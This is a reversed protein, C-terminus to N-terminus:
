WSEGWHLGIRVGDLIDVNDDHNLDAAVNWHSESPESGWALALVVADLINVTKDENVDGMVTVVFDNKTIVNNDENDEAVTNESDVSAKLSYKGSEGTKTPRFLNSFTLEKSSSGALSAVNQEASAELTSDYHVELKVKFNTATLTGSNQFTVNVPYYYNSADAWTDNAYISHVWTVNAHKNLIEIATVTLDLTEVSISGNVVTHTIAQANSDSLITGSLNLWSMGTAIPTFHMEFIAHSTYSIGTTTPYTTSVAWWLHGATENTVSHFTHTPENLGGSVTGNYTLDLKSPDYHLQFEWAYLDAVDTVNIYVTCEQGVIADTNSPFIEMKTDLASVFDVVQLASHLCLLLLVIIISSLFGRYIRTPKQM